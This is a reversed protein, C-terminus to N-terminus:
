SQTSSHQVLLKKLAWSENSQNTFKLIETRQL